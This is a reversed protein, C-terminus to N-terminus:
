SKKEKRQLMGVLVGVSKNKSTTHKGFTLQIIGLDTYGLIIPIRQRLVQKDQHTVQITSLFGSQPCYPSVSDSGKLCLYWVLTCTIEKNKFIYVSCIHFVPGPCQGPYELHWPVQGFVPVPTPVEPLALRNFFMASIVPVLTPARPRLSPPPKISFGM